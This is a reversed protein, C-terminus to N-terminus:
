TIEISPSNQGFLLFVLGGVLMMIMSHKLGAIVAGEAMKGVSLGAFLGQILILNRFIDKFERAIEEASQSSGQLNQATSNTLSPVLFTQLSIIVGLFVFFIIYGTMMQSQLFFKREAKLRDVEVATKSLAEFTEALRGGYRHSEIVSSVIRGILASNTSRSFSLLVKDVPIGWELQAAIKKVYPNLAGYDNRSILNFAVPVTMGGRVAEVFDRLFIPFNEETQRKRNYIIYKELLYPAVIIGIGIVNLTTLMSNDKRFFMFSIVAIIVAIIIGPVFQKLLKKNRPNDLFGKM